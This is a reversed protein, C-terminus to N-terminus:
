PTRVHRNRQHTPTNTHTASNHRNHQHTNHQHTPTNGPTMIVEHTNTHQHTRTPPDYRPSSLPHSFVNARWVPRLSLILNGTVVSVHHIHVNPTYMICSTNATQTCSAYERPLGPSFPAQPMSCAQPLHLITSAARQMGTAYWGDSVATRRDCAQRMVAAAHLMRLWYHTEFTVHYRLAVAHVCMIGRFLLARVCSVTGTRDM